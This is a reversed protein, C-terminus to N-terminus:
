RLSDYQNIPGSIGRILINDILQVDKPVVELGIKAYERAGNDMPKGNKDMFVAEMQKWYNSDDQIKYNPELDYVGIKKLHLLRVIFYVLLIKPRIWIIRKEITGLPKGTFANYFTEFETAPDICKKEKLSKFLGSLSDQVDEDVLTYSYGQKTKQDPSLVEKVDVIENTPHVGLEELKVFLYNYLPTGEWKNILLRNIWYRLTAKKMELKDEEDLMFQGLITALQIRVKEEIDKTRIQMLINFSRNLRSIYSLVLSLITEKDYEGKEAIVKAKSYYSQIVPEIVRYTIIYNYTKPISM